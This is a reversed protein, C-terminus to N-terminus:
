DIFTFLPVRAQTLVAATLKARAPVENAEGDAKAAVDPRATSFADGFVVCDDRSRTEDLGELFRAM